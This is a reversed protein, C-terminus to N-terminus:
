KNKRENTTNLSEILQNILALRFTNKAKLQRLTSEMDELMAKNKADDALLSQLLEEKTKLFLKSM